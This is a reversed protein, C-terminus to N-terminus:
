CAMVHVVGTGVASPPGVAKFPPDNVDHRAQTVTVTHTTRM